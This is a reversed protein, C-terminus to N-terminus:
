FRAPSKQNTISFIIDTVIHRLIGRVQGATQAKGHQQHKKEQTGLM